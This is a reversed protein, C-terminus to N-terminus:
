ISKKQFFDKSDKKQTMAFGIKSKEQHRGQIEFFPHIGSKCENDGAQLPNKLNVEPTIGASREIALMTALGNWAMYKKVQLCVCLLM